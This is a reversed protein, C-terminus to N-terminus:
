GHQLATVVLRRGVEVATKGDSATADAGVAKVLEPNKNFLGGGVLVVLSPNTSAARLARIEAAISESALDCAASLGIADFWERSVLDTLDELSAAPDSWVRWGARRFFESVM